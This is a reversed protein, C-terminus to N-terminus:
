LQDAWASVEGRYNKTLTCIQAWEKKSFHEICHTFGSADKKIGQIQLNSGIVIVKCDDNVRTLIARLADTTMCQAEDVIVIKRSWDVGLLYGDTFATIFADGKNTDVGLTDDSVAVIPNEGLKILTGYLPLMYPREKDRLDGPLFGLRESSNTRIYYIEDYFGYHYLMLAAGIAITTNHTVIYDNTLYLHEDNDVYICVMDTKYGLDKIGVIGLRNYKRKKDSSKADIAKDKKRALRFLKEKSKNDVRFHLCYCAGNKYKEKRRDESMTATFGLSYCVRMIDEILSKNVSTYRVNWRGEAYDIGGDTDMLGQLLSLRQEISSYMYESPIRKSYSDGILEPIDAFVDRTKLKNGDKDFFHWSYNKEHCKKYSAGLLRAVEAVSEEDNSSITLARETCCGNGIFSGVVYPDVPLPVADYKVPSNVPINYRSGGRNGLRIDRNLMSDLTETVLSQNGSNINYYTWLHERACITKRGDNFTVEYAEQEGQPFVGLVMTPDGTRSFVYDGVKIDGLKVNGSPTPIITDVPQAKGSGANAECAIFKKDKDWIANAYVLQDEDMQFGYFNTNDLKQPPDGYYDPQAVRKKKTGM